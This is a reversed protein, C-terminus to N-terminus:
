RLNIAGKELAGAGFVAFNNEASTPLCRSVKMSVFLVINDIASAVANRTNDFVSEAWM